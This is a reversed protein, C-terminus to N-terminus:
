KFKAGSLVLAAIICETEAFGMGMNRFMEIMGDLRPTYQEGCITIYDGYWATEHKYAELVRKAEAKTM